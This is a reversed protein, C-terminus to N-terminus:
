PRGAPPPAAPTKPPDTLETYTPPVTSTRINFVRTNKERAADKLEKLRHSHKEDADTIIIEINPADTSARRSEKINSIVLQYGTEPADGGGMLPIDMIKDIMQALARPNRTRATRRIIEANPEGMEIDRFTKVTITGSQLRDFLEPLIRALADRSSQMSSTADLNITVHSNPFNEIVNAVQAEGGGAGGGEGAAGSSPRGAPSGRPALTTTPGSPDRTPEVTPMVPTPEDDPLTFGFTPPEVIEGETGAGGDDPESPLGTGEISGPPIAAVAPDEGHIGTGGGATGTGHGEMAAGGGAHKGFGDGSGDGAGDPGTVELGMGAVVGRGGAANGLRLSLLLIFIALLFAAVIGVLASHRERAECEVMTASGGSPRSQLESRQMDNLTAREHTLGHMGRLLREPSEPGFSGLNARM